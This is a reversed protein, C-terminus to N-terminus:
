VFRGANIDARALMLPMIDELAYCLHAVVDANVRGHVSKLVKSFWESAPHGRRMSSGACFARLLYPADQDRVSAFVPVATRVRAFALYCAAQYREAAEGQRLMSKLEDAARSDNRLCRRALVACAMEGREPQPWQLDPRRGCNVLALAMCMGAVDGPPNRDLYSRVLDAVADDLVAGTLRWMSAARLDVDGSELAYFLADAAEGRHAALLAVAALAVPEAYDEEIKHEDCLALMEGLAEGSDGVRRAACLAVLRVWDDEDGTFDALAAVDPQESLNERAAIIQILTRKWAREVALRANGPGGSEGWPLDPDEQVAKQWQGLSEVWGDQGVLDLALAAAAVARYAACLDGRLGEIIAGAADAALAQGTAATEVAARQEPSLTYEDYWRQRGAIARSVDFGEDAARIGRAERLVQRLWQVADDIGPAIFEGVRIDKAAELTRTAEERMLFSTRENEVITNLAAVTERVPLIGVTQAVWRIAECAHQQVGEDYDGLAELYVPYLEMGATRTSTFGGVGALGARDRRGGPNSRLAAIARRRVTTDPHTRLVDVLLGADRTYSLTDAARSRVAGDRDNLAARMADSGSIDQLSSLENIAHVKDSSSGNSVVEELMPIVEDAAHVSGTVLTAAHSSAAIGANGAEWVTLMRRGAVQGEIKDSLWELGATGTLKTLVEGARRAVEFDEDRIADNLLPVAAAPEFRDMMLVAHRRVESDEHKLARALHAVMDPHGPGLKAMFTDLASSVVRYSPDDLVTEMIELAATSGIGALALVAEQRVEVGEDHVMARLAALAADSSVFGLSQAVQRRVHEDENAVIARHIDSETDGLAEMLPVALPHYRSAIILSLATSAARRVATDEDSLAGPLFRLVEPNSFSELAEVARSRVVPDGMEFSDALVSVATPSSSMDALLEAGVRALESDDGHLAARALAATVVDPAGTAMELVAQRLRRSSIERMCREAFAEVDGSTRFQDIIQRAQAALERANTRQRTAM